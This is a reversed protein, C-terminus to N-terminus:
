QKAYEFKMEYTFQQRILTLQNGIEPIVKFEHRNYKKKSKLVNELCWHMFLDFPNDNPFPQICLKSKIPEILLIKKEGCMLQYTRLEIYIKKIIGRKM